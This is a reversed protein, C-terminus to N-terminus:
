GRMAFLHNYLDPYAGMKPHYGFARGGCIFAKEKDLGANSGRREATFGCKSSSNLWFPDGMFPDTLSITM